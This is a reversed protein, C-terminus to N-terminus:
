DRDTELKTFDVPENAPMTPPADDGGSAPMRDLLDEYFAARAANFYPIVFVLALGFTAFGLLWWGAFSLCLCFYRLRNGHMLRKSEDICREASWGPHDVKVLYILAYSFAAMIGPVVLLLSWCFIYIHSLAMLWLTSWSEGFGSFAHGVRAGGRMVAISLASLGFVVVSEVYCDVFKAISFAALSPLSMVKAIALEIANLSGDSIVGDEMDQMVQMMTKKIMIKMEVLGCASQVASNVAFAMAFALLCGIMATAWGGNEGLKAWAREKATRADM